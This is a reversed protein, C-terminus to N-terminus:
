SIIGFRISHKTYTNECIDLVELISMILIATLSKSCLTRELQEEAEDIYYVFHVDKNCKRSIGNLAFM